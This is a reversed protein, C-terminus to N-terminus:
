SEEDNGTSKELLNLDVASGALGEIAGSVHSSNDIITQIMKKKKQWNKEFEEKEKDLQTQLNRFNERMLQLNRRFEQGTVYDYVAHMMDGKNEQFKRIDAIRLIANRLVTVLSRVEHFSCIYVGHKEGFQTMDKPMTKTVIVAVDAGQNHLDTKLKEIWDSSFNETRKSEFIIKGCNQGLNNRVTQICDAGKIGKGVETITDFPFSKQLMEELALEQVEGQSQMSGQEAKRKMEDALKTADELKKEMEKMRLNYETEKAAIRQEELKRIDKSLKERELQLQKQVSLELEEEKTKLEQERKLIEVQQQRAEKLKEEFDKNNQELLRLKSEFDVILNKRIADELEKEKNKKWQEVRANAEKRVEEEISKRISENPEFDHGCNPCKIESSMQRHTQNLDLIFFRGIDYLDSKLLAGSRLQVSVAMAPWLIKKGAVTKM